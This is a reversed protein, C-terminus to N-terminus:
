SCSSAESGSPATRVGLLRYGPCFAFFASLLPGIGLLGWWGSAPALWILSLMALGLLVRLARDLPGVNRDLRM